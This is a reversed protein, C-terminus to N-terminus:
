QGLYRSRKKPKLKDLDVMVLGDICDAFDADVNFDIFRVGGQEAVESYQKYLTPVTVDMHALQQRLKKFDAEYDDGSIIDKIIAKDQKPVSYPMRSKALKQQDNFYHQYFSVILAKALEPYSNSLSV